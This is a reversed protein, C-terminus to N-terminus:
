RKGGRELGIKRLINAGFDYIWEQNKFDRYTRKPMDFYTQLEITSIGLKNAVYEFDHKINVPDYPKNKLEELAVDRSLQGTLILSSLQVRRVDYGFREYLWFSEYFKTFRSEFHKQPYEQWGFKKTLLEIADKKHYNIYNLPAVVQINKYYKL